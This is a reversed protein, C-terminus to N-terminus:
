GNTVKKSSYVGGSLEGLFRQVVVQAAGLGTIQQAVHTGATGGQLATMLAQMMAVFAKVYADWNPLASLTGGVEVRAANLVAKTRGELTLEKGATFAGNGTPARFTVDGLDARLLVNGHPAALEMATGSTTASNGATMLLKDAAQVDLSRGRLAMAEDATMSLESAAAMRINSGSAVQLDGSSTRTVPGDVEESLTGTIRTVSDGSVSLVHTGCRLELTGDELCSVRVASRGDPDSVSLDFGGASAGATVGVTWRAKGGGNQEVQDSGGRMFLTTKGNVTETWTEGWESRVRLRRATVDLFGTNEITRVRAGPGGIETMGGRLVNVGHGLDGVRGWDGAILPTVDGPERFSAGERPEALGAETSVALGAPFGGRVVPIGLDWDVVVRDGVQLTVRDRPWALTPVDELQRGSDTRVTAALRETSYAVVTGLESSRALNRAAAGEGAM